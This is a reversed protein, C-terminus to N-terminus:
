INPFIQLVFPMQILKRTVSPATWTEGLHELMISFIAKSLCVLPQASSCGAGGDAASFACAPYIVSGVRQHGKAAM